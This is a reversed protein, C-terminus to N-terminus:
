ACKKFIIKFNNQGFLIYVKRGPLLYMHLVGVDVEETDILMKLIELEGSQIAWQVSAWEKFFISCAKIYNSLIYVFEEVTM